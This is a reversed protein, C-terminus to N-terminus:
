SKEIEKILKKLSQMIKTDTWCTYLIAVTLFLNWVSLIIIDLKM